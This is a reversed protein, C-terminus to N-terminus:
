LSDGTSLVDGRFYNTLSEAAERFVQESEELSATKLNDVRVLFPSSLAAIVEGTPSFIPFSLNTVGQTTESPAKYYGIERIQQLEDLFRSKDLPPEGVAPIHAELLEEVEEDTRFASIIRGSGTNWLGIVSGTRISLGWNGPAEVSSVIVIAGGSEMGIHCSQWVKKACRRMIPSAAELLRVIPSYRQATAFLKLSLMYGDGSSTRSVYGSRVLTCLMRYIENKSRDLARAIESQTMPEQRNSLLEIIDLGKELAPARYKADKDDQDSQSM